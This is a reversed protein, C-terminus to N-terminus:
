RGVGNRARKWTINHSAAPRARPLTRLHTEVDSIVKSLARANTMTEAGVSQRITQRLSGFDGQLSELRTIPGDAIIARLKAYRHGADSIGAHQWLPVAGSVRPALRAYSGGHSRMESSSLCFM